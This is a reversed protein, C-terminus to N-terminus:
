GLSAVRQTLRSFKRSATNKHLVGKSVGRMLEPQAAALAAAATGKDGAPYAVMGFTDNAFFGSLDLAQSIGPTPVAVCNRVHVGVRVGGDLELGIHHDLGYARQPDLLVRMTNTAVARVTDPRFSRLREAFRALAETARRQSAADLLDDEDLGAALRVPVKLSDLPRIQAGVATGEVRGILLRFSNSGLDVAALLRQDAM